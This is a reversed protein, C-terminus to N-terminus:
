AIVAPRRAPLAKQTVFDRPNVRVLRRRFRWTFDPWLTSNRGSSDLYWSACGGAVWVTGEMRRDVQEVFRAQAEPRPEVARVGSRRMLRLVALFHDIQAEIMYIVSTHGLGTNPGLLVFLNPFGSVSTGLHAMPSPTWVDALRTGARGHIHRALPPTTPQFGTGFIIADVDREVGAADVISHERVRVIGETVIEVNLQTVAPLYDNSLLVRKCGMTFTPTLKRRLTRDKVAKYLHRLAARQAFHAVGPHQFALLFAERRVYILARLLRQVGPVNRTM